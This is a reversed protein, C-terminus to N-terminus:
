IISKPKRFSGFAKFDRRKNGKVLERELETALHNGMSVSSYRDKRATGQTVLKFTGQEMNVQELNMVETIFLETQRYPFKMLAQMENKLNIYKLKKDNRLQEEAIDERILLRFKGRLFSDALNNAMKMNLENTARIIHIVKPADPFKSEQALADDNRVNLPDYSVGRSIDDLPRRLNDLIGMGVNKSDLVIYDCDFDEYLQRIRIAQTEFDIGEMDQMYVLQREYTAGKPILRILSFVSADNSNGGMRAVDVALIRKERSDKVPNEYNTNETVEKPYLPKNLKRNADIKNFNFFAMESEGWWRAEMEMAFKMKNFGDQQAEAKMQKHSYLKEKVGTYYPIHCVFTQLADKSKKKLMQKTYGLMSNYSWHSKLWASSLYMQMNEERPYDRYEPKSLFKPERQSTLMKKFVTDITDSDVKVFEDVLLLNARHGRANDNSAVVRIWSGNHFEIAPKQNGTNIYKIERRLLPSMIEGEIKELVNIGQTKIPATIIIKTEPYLVCRTVCYVASLFTKGLGRSALFMFYQHHIMAWLLMCQFPRLNIGLFDLVFRHPNARYYAIWIAINQMIAESKSIQKRHNRRLKFLNVQNHYQSSHTGKNIDFGM